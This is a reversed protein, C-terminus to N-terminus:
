KIQVLNGTSSCSKIPSGTLLWTSRALHPWGSTYSPTSTAGAVRDRRWAACRAAVHAPLHRVDAAASIANDMQLRTPPYCPRSADQQAIKPCGKAIERPNGTKQPQAPNSLPKNIGLTPDTIEPRPFQVEAVVGRDMDAENNDDM